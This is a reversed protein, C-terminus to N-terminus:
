KRFAMKDLTRQKSPAISILWDRLPQFVRGVVDRGSLVSSINRKWQGKRSPIIKKFLCWGSRPQSIELTAKRCNGEGIERGERSLIERWSGM